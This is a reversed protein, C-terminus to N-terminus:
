KRGRLEEYIPLYAENLLAQAEEESLEDVSTKEVGCMSVIQSYDSEGKHFGVGLGNLLSQAKIVRQMTKPTLPSQNTMGQKPEAKKPAKVKPMKPAITPEPINSGTKKNSKERNQIEEHQEDTDADKTDDIAFLGNLCYKRAYSSSSGTLQDAGFNKRIDEERAYAVTNISERTIWDTLVAESKVYFRNGIEVIEDTLALTVGYKQCLPKVGELISEANRYYYNGFKNYLNKPAKLENQIMCLKQTIPMELIMQQIKEVEDMNEKETNNKMEQKPM